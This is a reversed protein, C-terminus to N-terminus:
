FGYKMEKGDIIVRPPYNKYERKNFQASKLWGDPFEIKDNAVFDDFSYPEGAQKKIQKVIAERSPANFYNLGVFYGMISQSEARWVGRYYGFGGEYAGVIGKYKPHNIMHAWRIKSLDGTFDISTFMNFKDQLQKTNEIEEPPIIEPSSHMYEDALLGIGHGGSEHNISYTDANVGLMACTKVKGSNNDPFYATNAHVSYSNAILTVFSDDLGLSDLFHQIKIYNYTPFSGLRAITEFKNKVLYNDSSIGHEKSVAKVMYINFYDKYTKFPEIAIFSDKFKTMTTEYIKGPEVEYDVFGDGLVVIDIGKGKTASHLRVIKGDESFDTSVYKEIEVVFGDQQPLIWRSPSWKDWNPHNLVELPIKGSLKNGVCVFTILSLSGIEKPITGELNCRIVEFEVLNKLNGIEPSLIGTLNHQSIGNGL